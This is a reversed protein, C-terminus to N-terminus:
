KEIRWLFIRLRIEHVLMFAVVAAMVWGGLAGGTYFAFWLWGSLTDPM